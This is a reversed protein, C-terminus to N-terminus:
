KKVDVAASEETAKPEARPFFTSLYRQSFQAFGESAMNEYVAAEFTPFDGKSVTTDPPRWASLRYKHPKSDDPLRFSVEFLMGLGVFVGRPNASLYSAGSMEASHEVYMTPYKNPPLPGETDTVPPGVELSLIDAPFAATFRNVITKAAMAERPRAHTDDFYQSPISTTGMFFPSKKIQTDAIEMSRTNKRRFRLEAKPGNKEVYALLREVFALANGDRVGSEKKYRALAGLYVAHIAQKLEADVMNNPHRKAFDNLVSVTGAKKATELEALMAQRLAVAVEGQIQASPHTAIFKEIADVSGERVAESLEARPLLVDRVEAKTGGRALYSRFSDADKAKNARALMQADSVFNRALWIGPALLVGIAAGVFWVQRSWFPLYRPMRSTPAFPNVVGIDVLPDLLGLSKRDGSAHAKEVATQADEITKEVEAKHGAALLTFTFTEGEPFALTLRKDEVTPTVLRSLPFIRLKQSRADIVGAPFLYVGPKYPLKWRQKLVSLVKMVSIAVTATLLAYAGALPAAQLAFSSKLDGFGLDVLLLVLLFAGGGIGSWMLAERPPGARLALLPRPQGEGRVSVTFRDQVARSLEYFDMEQM